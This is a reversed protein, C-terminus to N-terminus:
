RSLAEALERKSMSSRGRVGADRAREYLESRSLHELEDASTGSSRDGADRSAAPANGRDLAEMSRRLAGMLDPVAAPEREREPITVRKGQKKREIVDLLRQRFRDEYRDPDWDVTLAEILGITQDLEAGSAEGGGTQIDDTPRIEDHFLMTTLSLRADRVRILVLYEKTRLVFRGLAAQDTRGMVEVMLQYARRVGEGEGAPLLVYPHDFAIPDVHALDVFAEIDITRTKRPAVAALEEDTLVVRRGDDLDYGHAIQEYPVERDQASCFRRTEIPADDKAHLQRFRVDLDRVASFLAVPVNVLGFSLSGTWLSRAM